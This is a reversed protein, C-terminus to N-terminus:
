EDTTDIIWTRSGSLDDNTRCAIMVGERQMNRHRWKFFQWAAFAIAIVLLLVTSVGFLWKWQAVSDGVDSYADKDADFNDGDEEDIRESEVVNLSECVLVFNHLTHLDFHDAQMECSMDFWKVTAGDKSEAVACRELDKAQKSNVFLGNEPEDALWPPNSSEFSSELSSGDATWRWQAEDAWATKNLAEAVGDPPDRRLGIWIMWSTLGTVNKIFYPLIGNKFDSDIKPLYWDYGNEGLLRCENESWERSTTTVGEVYNIYLCHEPSVLLVKESQRCVLAIAVSILSAVSVVKPFLFQM